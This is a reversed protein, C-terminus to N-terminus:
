ATPTAAAIAAAVTLLPFLAVFSTFTMAAALRTWKVRDLREFSRWAHTLMLRALLPGVVPLKKLWDMILSEGLHPLGIHSYGSFGAGHRAATPALVGLAGWKVISRCGM